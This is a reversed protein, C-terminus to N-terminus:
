PDLIEGGLAKLRQVVAAPDLGLRLAGAVVHDQRIWPSGSDPAFSFVSINGTRPTSTWAWTGHGVIPM